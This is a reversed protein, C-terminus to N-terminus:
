VVSKRDVFRAADDWYRGWGTRLLAVDGPELAVRQAHAAADLKAPTIEYDEPLAAVGEHGAIDLLVGRRLIPAITDVALRSLGATWSQAGAAEAGGHLLGDRSFHCLADIHTGAHGGLALAESASSVGGPAVYDGHRKSLGYLFPPHNPHHPMGACYPQALDFVRLCPLLNLFETLM